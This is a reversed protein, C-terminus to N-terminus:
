DAACLLERQSSAGSAAGSGSLMSYALRLAPYSPSVAANLESQLFENMVTTQLEKDAGHALALAHAWLKRDLAYRVASVRDGRLLHSQIATLDKGSVAASPVTSTEAAVPKNGLDVATPMTASKVESYDLLASGALLADRVAENIKPSQQLDYVYKLYAGSRSM